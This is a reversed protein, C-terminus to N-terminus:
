SILEAEAAAAALRRDATVLVAREAEALALYCGDYASLGREVAIAFATAVLPRLSRVDLRLANVIEIKELAVRPDLALGRVYRLLSHACEAFVLEPVVADIEGTEARRVWKEAVPSRAVVARVVVSADFVARSPTM